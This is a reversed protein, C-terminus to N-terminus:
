GVLTQKDSPVTRRNCHLSLDIEKKICRRGSKNTQPFHTLENVALDRLLHNRMLTQDIAVDIPLKRYKAIYLM